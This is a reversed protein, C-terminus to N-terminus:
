KFIKKFLLSVLNKFHIHERCYGVGLKAQAASGFELAKSTGIPLQCSSCPPACKNCIPFSGRIYGMSMSMPVFGDPLSDHEKISKELLHFALPKDQAGCIACACSDVKRHLYSERLAERMAHRPDVSTSM